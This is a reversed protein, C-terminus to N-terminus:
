GWGGPRIHWNIEARFAIKAGLSCPGSWQPSAFLTLPSSEQDGDQQRVVKNSNVAVGVVLAAITSGCISVGM